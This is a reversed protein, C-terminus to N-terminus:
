SANGSAGLFVMLNWVLVEYFCVMKKGATSLTHYLSTGAANNCIKRLLKHEEVKSNKRNFLFKKILFLFQTRDPKSYKSGNLTTIGLNQFSFWPSSVNKVPYDTIEPFILQLKSLKFITILKM